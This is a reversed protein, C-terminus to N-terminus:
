NQDIAKHKPCVRYTYAIMYNNSIATVGLETQGPIGAIEVILDGDDTVRIFSYLTKNNVRETFTTSGILQNRSISEDADDLNYFYTTKSDKFSIENFFQEDFFSFKYVKRPNIMIFTNKLAAYDICYWVKGLQLEEPSPHSAKQFRERRERIYPDQDPTGAQSHITLPIFSIFLVIRAYYIYKM